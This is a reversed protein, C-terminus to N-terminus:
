FQEIKFHIEPLSWSIRFIHIEPDPPDGLALIKFNIKSSADFLEFKSKKILKFIDLFGSNKLSNQRGLFPAAVHIKLCIKSIGFIKLFTPM